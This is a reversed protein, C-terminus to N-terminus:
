PRVTQVEWGCAIESEGDLASHVDVIMKVSMTGSGSEVAMDFFLDNRNVDVPNKGHSPIQFSLASQSPYM